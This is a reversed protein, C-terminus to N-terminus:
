PQHQVTQAALDRRQQLHRRLPQSLPLALAEDYAGLGQEVDDTRLLLEARAAHLGASHAMGGVQDLLRLGAPAGDREGVAVAHALRVAPTDQVTLLVDYWSRVAAWDTYTMRQAGEPALSVARQFESMRLSQWWLLGVVVLALAALAAIALLLQRRM